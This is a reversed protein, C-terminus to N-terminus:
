NRAFLICYILSLTSHLLYKVITYKDNVKSITQLPPVGARLQNSRRKTKSLYKGVIGNSIRSHVLYKLFKKEARTAVHRMIIPKRKIVIVKFVGRM